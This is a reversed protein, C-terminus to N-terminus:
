CLLVDMEEFQCAAHPRNVHSFIYSAHCRHKTLIPMYCQTIEYDVFRNVPSMFVEKFRYAVNPGRDLVGAQYYQIPRNYINCESLM